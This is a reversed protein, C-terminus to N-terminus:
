FNSGDVAIKIFSEKKDFQKNLKGKLFENLNFRVDPISFAKFPEGLINLRFIRYSIEEEDFNGIVVLTFM